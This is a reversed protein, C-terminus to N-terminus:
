SGVRESKLVLEHVPQPISGDARRGGTLFPSVRVQQVHELLTAPQGPEGRKLDTAPLETGAGHQEGAGGPCSLTPPPVCPCFPLPLPSQSPM